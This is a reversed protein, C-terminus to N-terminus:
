APRAPTVERVGTVELYTVLTESAIQVNHADRLHAAMQSKLYEKDSATLRSTCQQHVCQFEYM